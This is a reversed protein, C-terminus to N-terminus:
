FGMKKKKRKVNANEIDLEYYSFDEFNEVDFLRRLIREAEEKESCALNIKDGVARVETNPNKNKIIRLYFCVVAFNACWSLELARQETKELNHERMEEDYFSRIEVIKPHMDMEIEYNENLLKKYVIEETM